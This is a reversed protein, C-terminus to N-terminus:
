QRNRLAVRTRQTYAPSGPPQISLDIQVFAVTGPTTAPTTGDIQFFNFDLTTVDDALTEPGLNLSPTSGNKYELTVTSGTKTIIVETPNACDPERKFFDLTSVPNALSSTIYYDSPTVPDRCTERIERAMRETAYRLKGLYVLSQNSADYAKFSSSLFPVAVAALIGLVVITVVMEVLTFGRAHRM